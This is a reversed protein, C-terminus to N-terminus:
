KGGGWYKHAGAEVAKRLTDQLWRMQAKLNQTAYMAFDTHLTTHCARCVPIAMADDAKGGMIGDFGIIHHADDSPQGCGCCPLTRIWAIYKPSRIANTKLM